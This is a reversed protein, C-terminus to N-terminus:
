ALLDQESVEETDLDALQGIVGDCILMAGREERAALLADFKGQDFTPQTDM